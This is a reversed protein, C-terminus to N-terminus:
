RIQHFKQANNKDLKSWFYRPQYGTFARARLNLVTSLQDAHKLMVLGPLRPLPERKSPFWSLMHILADAGKAWIERLNDLYPQLIQLGMIEHSIMHGTDSLHNSTKITRTKGIDHCLTAVVTLSAEPEPIISSWQSVWEGCEVTHRLLGGPESHHHSCSAPVRMWAAALPQDQLIDVMFQQLAPHNIKEILWLLRDLDAPHTAERYLSELLVASFLAPLPVVIGQTPDYRVLAGAKVDVQQTYIWETNGCHLLEVAQEIGKSSQRLCVSRVTGLLIDSPKVVSSRKLVVRNTAIM